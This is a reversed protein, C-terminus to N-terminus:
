ASENADNGAQEVFQPLLGILRSLADETEQPTDESTQEKNEENRIDVGTLHWHLESLIFALARYNIYLVLNGWLGLKYARHYAFAVIGVLDGDVPISAIISEGNQITERRSIFTPWYIADDNQTKLSYHIAVLADFFWLLIGKRENVSTLTEFKPMKTKANGNAASKDLILPIVANLKENMQAQRTSVNIEEASSTHMKGSAYLSLIGMAGAIGNFPIFDYHTFVLGTSLHYIQEAYKNVEMFETEDLHTKKHYKLKRRQANWEIIVDHNAVTDGNYNITLSAWAMVDLLDLAVSKM